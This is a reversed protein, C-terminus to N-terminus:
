LRRKFLRTSDYSERVYQTEPAEVNPDPVLPGDTDETFKDFIVRVNWQIKPASAGCHKCEIIVTEREGDDDCDLYDIERLDDSNCFPCNILRAMIIEEGKNTIKYLRRGSLGPENRSSIYGRNELSYLTLYILGRKLKNDSLAIIDLGFMEGRQGFLIQLVLLSKKNLRAVKNM